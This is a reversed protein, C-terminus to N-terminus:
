VLKEFGATFLNYEPLGSPNFQINGDGYSASERIGSDNYHIRKRTNGITLDKFVFTDGLEERRVQRRTGLLNGEQSYVKDLVTFKDFRKQTDRRAEKITVVNKDGVPYREISKARILQIKGDKTVTAITKGNLTQTAIKSGDAFEKVYKMIAGVKLGM